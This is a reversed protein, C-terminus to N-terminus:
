RVPPEIVELDSIGKFHKKDYTYIRPISRQRAFALVWADIFDIQKNRYIEVAERILRNDQVELGPTHLLDKLLDAVEPTEMKYFSELVWVLEAMVVSPIVLRVEGSSARELLSEVSDAKHLDDETLYRVLLNTDIVAKKKNKGKVLEKGLPRKLRM